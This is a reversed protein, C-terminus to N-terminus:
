YWLSILDYWIAKKWDQFGYQVLCVCVCVNTHVFRSCKFFNFFSSCVSLHRRFQIVTRGAGSLRTATLQTAPACCPGTYRFVYHLSKFRVPQSGRSPTVSGTYLSYLSSPTATVVGCLITNILFSISLRQWSFIFCLCVCVFQVSFGHLCFLIFLQLFDTNCVVSNPDFSHLVFTNVPHLDVAM